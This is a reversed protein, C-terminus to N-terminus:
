RLMTLVGSSILIAGSAVNLHHLAGIPLRQHLLWVSGSVTWYCSLTGLCIGVVAWEHTSQDVAPAVVLSGAFALYPILSMPNSLALALGGVYNAVRGTPTGRSRHPVPRRLLTRLGIALLLLGSILHIQSQMGMLPRVLADAGLVSLTAYIAHTTAAGAGSAMGDWIGRTLSREVCMMTVPGFPIAISLGLLWGSIFSQM